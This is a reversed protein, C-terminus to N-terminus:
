RDWLEGLGMVLLTIGVGALLIASAGVLARQRSRDLFRATGTLFVFGALTVVMTVYFSAVLALAHAPAISWAVGVSPGLVLAWGLYPNPNLVNVLTAEVLTRPASAHPVPSMPKRWQLLVRAALWLLLLGGGSRLVHLVGPPWQTLVSITLLAIPGDSILPAFCAPLTRRWGSALVRSIL